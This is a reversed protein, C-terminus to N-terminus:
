VEVEGRVTWGDRQKRGFIELYPGPSSSEVLSYFTSPKSSHEGERPADFWTGVDKRKLGQSGKVGFLIQETSGRFYNGMGISPKCWTLCTVYRFGWADLLAFGKPLSRNTIWLYLHCDVDALQPVPYAILQELTMTAYTPRARGLQDADGEDGWDWPPDIAITAFRVGGLLPDSVHKVKERNVERRKEREQEKAARAKEKETAKHLDEDAALGTLVDLPKAPEPLKKGAASREAQKDKGKQKGRGTAPLNKGVTVHSVGLVKGIQRQSHGEAALEKVAQRRDAVALKVYGGLRDQVWRETSLGLAKPVGLRQGLAIQRWGGGVVQGLAQTYEEADVKNM